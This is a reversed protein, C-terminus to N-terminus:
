SPPPEERRARLRRAARQNAVAVAVSLVMLALVIGSIGVLAAWEVPRDPPWDPRNGGRLILGFGIPGGFAAVTMMGLLAFAQRTLQRPDKM